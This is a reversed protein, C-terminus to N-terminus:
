KKPEKGVDKTTPPAAEPLPIKQKKLEAIFGDRWGFRRTADPDTKGHMQVSVQVSDDRQELAKKVEIGVEAPSKGKLTAIFGQAMHGGQRVGEEYTTKAEGELTAPDLTYSEHVAALSKNHQVDTTLKPKTNVVAKTEAAGHMLFYAAFVLVALFMVATGGGGALIGVKAAPSLNQWFGMIGGAPAAEVEEAVAPSGAAPKAAAASGGPVLGKINAAPAWDTMGQTWVLATRPVQGSGILEQLKARPVPGIEADGKEYYWGDAM